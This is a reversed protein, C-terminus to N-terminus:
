PRKEELQRIREKLETMKLERDIMFKNMRELAIMKENLDAQLQKQATIDFKVAVFHTIKGRADKIPSITATEWFFEGNKKKNHFDGHWEKGTTITAWLHAYEEATTKGGKLIRPNQGIAEAVSYGTLETFKPNVYIIKGELDTIVITNASQEVAQQFQQLRQETKKRGSIDRIIGISGTVRGSSDKLVSVSIDIDLIEGNKKKVLTELHHQEGKKRMELSRIRQWEEDPYITSLQKLYLDEKTMGLLVETQHNWSVIREESDVMMIAAASQEFITRYREEAMKLNDIAKKQETIDEFSEIGGIVHGAADKLLDVNKTITRRSGDKCRITCERNYIPKEVDEAYLGCKENCPSESFITCSKGIVEDATYGTLDCAKKNWSTVNKSIDVTYLASPIVNYVMELWDKTQLIATETQRQKTTDRALTLICRQGELEITHASLSVWIRDKDRRYNIVELSQVYGKRIVEDIFLQREKVTMWLGLELSSHGIMEERSYGFLRAASENVDIFVGDDLRSIMFADPNAYFIM